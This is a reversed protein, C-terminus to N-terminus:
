HAAQGGQAAGGHLSEGAPPGGHGGDSRLKCGARRALAQERTGSPISYNYGALLKVVCWFWFLIGSECFLDERDDHLRVMAADEARKLAQNMRMEITTKEEQLLTKESMLINKEEVLLAKDDEM